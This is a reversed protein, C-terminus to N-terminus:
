EKCDGMSAIDTITTPAKIVPAVCSIWFFYLTDALTINHIMDTNNAITYLKNICKTGSVSCAVVISNTLEQIHLATNTYSYKTRMQIRLSTGEKSIDLFYVATHPKKIAELLICDTRKWKMSRTQNPDSSYMLFLTFVQLCNSSIRPTCCVSSCRFSRHSSASSSRKMTRSHIRSSLIKYTSRTVYIFFKM